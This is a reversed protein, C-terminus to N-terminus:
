NFYDALDDADSGASAGGIATEDDFADAADKNSEVAPREDYEPAVTFKGDDQRILPKLKAFADSKKGLIDEAKAPGILKKTWLEHEKIGADRMAVQAVSEDEFYRNGKRGQVLKWGCGPGLTGAALELYMRGRIKKCWDEIMDLLGYVRPLEQLDIERPKYATVIDDQGITEFADLAEQMCADALESCTAAARCYKCQKEGPIAPANPDLTAKARESIWEVWWMFEDIDIVYEDVHDLPPQCIIMRVRKIDELWMWYKNRAGEAYMVLQPNPMWSGVPKGTIRAVSEDIAYKAYVVERGSKLDTICIEDPFLIVSDSTGTAPMWTAGLAEAYQDSADTSITEGDRVWRGEGTIHGIEVKQEIMLEGGKALDRVFEVYRRASDIIDDDVEYVSPEPKSPGRYIVQGTDQEVLAHKGAAANLVWDEGNLVRASLDHCITGRDAATKDGVDPIGAERNLKAPCLTWAPSGSPSRRAHQGAM